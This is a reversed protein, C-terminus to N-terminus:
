WPLDESEDLPSSGPSEGRSTWRLRYQEILDALPQYQPTGPLQDRALCILADAAGAIQPDALGVRAADDWRDVVDACSALAAHQAGDQLLGTIVAAPVRWWRGPQADLYRVELHGRARVPPFLTTLHQRLDALTAVGAGPVVGPGGCLWDRFTVGHPALWSSAPREVIMLPADLVWRSWAQPVSEGQHVVPPRCREPDLDLWVGQRPNWFGPRSAAGPSSRDTTAFAASLAPGAAHLLNWRQALDDGFGAAEVNVQISATGRMMTRGASGWSDLYSEMADYRPTHLHRPPIPLPDIGSGILVADHAAVIKGVVALDAAMQAVAEPLDPAPQSSLEVQGGPEITIRGNLHQQSRLEDHFAALRGPPLHGPSGDAPRRDHVIFELELGTRDPPGHKFCTRPLWGEADAETLPQGGVPVEAVSSTTMFTEFV